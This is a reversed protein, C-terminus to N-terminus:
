TTIPAQEPVPQPSKGLLSGVLMGAFSALLGALQPPWIALSPPLVGKSAAIELAIWVSLGLVISTMAGTTNARKWYMGMVLPIFACVLTVKYANEVMQFISADSNLAFLTVATGFGLVM